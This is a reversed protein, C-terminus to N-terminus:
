RAVEAIVLGDAIGLPPREVVQLGRPWGAPGPDVLAV